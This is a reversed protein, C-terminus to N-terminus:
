FVATGKTFKDRKEMKQLLTQVNSSMSCSARFETIRRLPLAGREVRSRAVQGYAPNGALLLIFCIMLILTKSPSVRKGRSHTILTLPITCGLRGNIQGVKLTMGEDSRRM